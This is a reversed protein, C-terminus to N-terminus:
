TKKKGLDVKDDHNFDLKKFLLDQGLKDLIIGRDFM